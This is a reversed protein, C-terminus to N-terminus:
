NPPKQTNIFNLFCCFFFKNCIYNLNLHLAVMEVDNMMYCPNCICWNNVSNFVLNYIIIHNLTKWKIYNALNKEARENKPTGLKKVKSKQHFVKKKM